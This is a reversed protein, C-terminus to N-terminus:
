IRVILSEELGLSYKLFQYCERNSQKHEFNESM